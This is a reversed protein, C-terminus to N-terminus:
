KVLEILHKNHQLSKIIKDLTPRSIHLEDCIEVKSMEDSHNETIILKLYNYENNSLTPKIQELWEICETKAYSKETCEIQVQKRDDRKEDIYIFETDGGRKIREKSRVLDIAKNSVTKPILSLYDYECVDYKTYVALISDWLVSEKEHEDLQYFGKIKNGCVKKTEKYMHMLKEDESEYQFWKYEFTDEIFLRGQRFYKHRKYKHLENIWEDVFQENFDGLKKGYKIKELM